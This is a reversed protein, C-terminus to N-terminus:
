LRHHMWVNPEVYVGRDAERDIRVPTLAGAVVYEGSDPFPMDAWREWEDVSGDITMSEVCPRVISAGLRAHKRLWPDLPMGEATRWEVYREIPVLPYRPKWSPRVPAVLHEFGHEVAAERMRELCLRSLGAGHRDPRIAVSIASVANPEEEAATGRELVDEWGRDPLADLDVRVPVSNVEAVVEGAGEDFLFHQFAGFREYLRNWCRNAVPDELMFPPWSDLTPYRLAELEPRESHSFFALSV